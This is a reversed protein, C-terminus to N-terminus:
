EPKLRIVEHLKGAKRALAEAEIRIEEAFNMEDEFFQTESSIIEEFERSVMEQCYVWMDANYVDSFKEGYISVGKGFSWTLFALSRAGVIGRKHVKRFRDFDTNKLEHLQKALIWRSNQYAMSASVVTSEIRDIRDM